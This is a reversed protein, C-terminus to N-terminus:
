GDNTTFMWVGACWCELSCEQRSRGGFSAGSGSQRVVQSATLLQFLRTLLVKALSSWGTGGNSSAMTRQCYLSEKDSRSTGGKMGGYAM